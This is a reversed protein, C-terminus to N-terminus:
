FDTCVSYPGGPLVSDIKIGTISATNHLWLATTSRERPASLAEATAKDRADLAHLYAVVVQAAPADPPPLPVAYKQRWPWYRWTALGALCAIGAAIALARTLWLRGPKVTM